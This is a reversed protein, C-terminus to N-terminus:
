QQYGVSKMSPTTVMPADGGGGRPCLPRRASASVSLPSFWSSSQSFMHFIYEIQSHSILRSNSGVGGGRNYSILKDSLLLLLLVARNERDFNKKKLKRNFYSIIKIYKFFNQPFM